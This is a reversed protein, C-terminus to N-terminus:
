LNLAAKTECADGYFLIFELPSDNVFVFNLLSVLTFIKSFIKFIIINVKHIHIHM